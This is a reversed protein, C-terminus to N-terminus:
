QNIKRFREPCINKLVKTHSSIPMMFVLAQQFSSVTIESLINWVCKSREFKSLLLSCLHEIHSKIKSLPFLFWGNFFFVSTLTYSLSKRWSFVICLKGGFIYHIIAVKCAALSTSWQRNCIMSSQFRTWIQRLKRLDLINGGGIGLLERRGWILLHFNQEGWITQYYYRIFAHEM